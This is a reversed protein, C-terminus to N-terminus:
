EAATPKTGKSIPAGHTRAVPGLPRRLSSAAGPSGRRGLLHARKRRRVGRDDTQSSSSVVHCGCVADLGEEDVVVLPRTRGVFLPKLRVTIENREHGVVTRRKGPYLFSGGAIM